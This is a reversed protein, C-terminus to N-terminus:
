SREFKRPAADRCWQCNFRAHRESVHYRRVHHHPYRTQPVLLHGFKLFFYIVATANVFVFATLAFYIFHSDVFDALARQKCTFM